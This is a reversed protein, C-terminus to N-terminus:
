LILESILDATNFSRDRAVLLKTVEVQASFDGDPQAM